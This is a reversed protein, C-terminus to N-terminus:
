TARFTIMMSGEICGKPSVLVFQRRHVGDGEGSMTFFLTTSFFVHM